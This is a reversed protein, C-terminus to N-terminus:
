EGNLFEMIKKQQMEEKILMSTIWSKRVFDPFEKNKKIWDKLFRITREDSTYGSGFFGYKKHLKGIEKDRHVKAIISAAGVPTYKKDAFNECIIDIGNHRLNYGIKDKFRKTNVEPSDIIVKDTKLLRIIEQMKAIEIKNLNTIDRLKDIEQASVKLLMYDDALRKIKPILKRRKQPTLQKSDKVGCKTLKEVKDEDILYGCIM